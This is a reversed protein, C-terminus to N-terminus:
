AVEMYTIATPILGAKNMDYTVKNETSQYRSIKIHYNETSYTLEGGRGM